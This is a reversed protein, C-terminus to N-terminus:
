VTIAVPPNIALLFFLHLCVLALALMGGSSTGFAVVRELDATYARGARRLEDDLCGAYVWALLDRIDSMPGELVDVGPCLRHNPVLVIWGRSLCDSIQPRSVM